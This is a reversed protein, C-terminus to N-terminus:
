TCTLFILMFSNCHTMSIYTYLIICYLNIPLMVKLVANKCLIISTCGKRKVTSYYLDSIPFYQALLLHGSVLNSFNVGTCICISV